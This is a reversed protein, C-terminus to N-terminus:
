ESFSQSTSKPLAMLGSKMLDQLEKLPKGGVIEEGISTLVWDAEIGLADAYSSHQVKSVKTCGSASRSFEAGLPRHFVRVKKEEGKADFMIELCPPRGDEPALTVEKVTPTKAIAVVKKLREHIPKAPNTASGSVTALFEKEKGTRAPAESLAGPQGLSLRPLDAAAQLCVVDEKCPIAIGEDLPDLDNHRTQHLFDRETNCPRFVNWM